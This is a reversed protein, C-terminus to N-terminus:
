PAPIRIWTEFRFAYEHRTDAPRAESFSCSFGSEDYEPFTVDGEVRADVRTLELIDANPLAEAYVRAGGIVFVRTANRATATHLAEDLSETVDAGPLARLTRSLVINTRKPLPRGISEWTKRGMVVAHDTTLARFRALDAPLRWPLAGDRGIVGNKAVAAILTLSPSTM